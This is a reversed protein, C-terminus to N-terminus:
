VASGNKWKKMRIHRRVFYTIISGWCVVGIIILGIQFGYKHYGGTVGYAGSELATYLVNKTAQRLAKVGSVTGTIDNSIRTQGLFTLQIDNGALLARNVDETDAAMVCDTIVTGKFGWENRLITTLLEYSEATPTTGIRNFSSMIGLTKGDKVAMEFPKLYIERIAQENAWTVLGGDGRHNEQDNLAFHKLYCYVNSENIGKIEAACIIGSLNGDESYYEYNRGSFPSRHINCAPAYIGNINYSEIEKGFLQGKEYAMAENWTSALNSQNTYANGYAGTMFNNIANPGDCDMMTPKDAAKLAMVEWGANGVLNKMDSVSIQEVLEDWMPDDYDKGALDSLKLHHNVTKVSARSSDELNISEDTLAAIISESAEKADPFRETPMTGKWDARSVYKIDAGNSVDDFLNKATILDSSRAGANEEDYIIDRAVTVTRSDIVTHSDTQLRIEYEGAELIYGGNSAKIRQYDYSAMDEYSFTIDVTQSEGPNLLDTKSFGALVVSSKEIGDKTYPASYYVEAVDKGPLDGTNTIKVKMSIESGNDSFSAIERDFTTYSLGYGFPYQVTREYDIFGDEAATEYYRYGVYIGEVYEMYHYFGGTGEADGTGAALSNNVYTINSYDKAGFTYYSPASEVEYPYTDVTRGSPNVEGTLVQGVAICGTSGPCGISIAGDVENDEIFGLEMANNTNVIVILTGFNKELMSLLEKEVDQLELYSKGADGGTYGEMDLPLDFGEGGQRSVVFIATDSFAKANSIIEDSYDSVPNEYIGWDTGVLGMDTAATGNKDYFKVLEPNVELGAQTLGEVLSVFNGSSSAGSGTGGFTTKWSGYGFLNVKTGSNLPLAGNKNDLLIIAEAEERQTFSAADATAALAKESTADKSGNMLGNILGAYPKAVNYLVTIVLVLATIFCMLVFAIRSPRKITQGEYMRIRGKKVESM